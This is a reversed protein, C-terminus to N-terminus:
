SKKMFAFAGIITTMPVKIKTYNYYIEIKDDYLNLYYRFLFICEFFSFRRLQTCKETYFAHRFPLDPLDALFLM